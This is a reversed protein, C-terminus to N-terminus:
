HAEAGREEHEATRQAAETAVALAEDLNGALLLAEALSILAFSRTTQPEPSVELAAPQTQSRRSGRRSRGSVPWPAAWRPWSGRPMPTSIMHAVCRSFGTSCW